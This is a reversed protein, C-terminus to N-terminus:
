YFGNRSLNMLLNKNSTALFGLQYLNHNNGEKRVCVCVEMHFYM